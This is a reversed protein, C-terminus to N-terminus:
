RATLAAAMAFFGDLREKSSAADTGTADSGVREVVGSFEHGPIWPLDIPLIQRLTGSAKVLDLYNVATSKVKVLLEDGALKPTPVEDVVLPGGYELVRVAKM